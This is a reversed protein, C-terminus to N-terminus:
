ALVVRDCPKMKFNCSHTTVSAGPIGPFARSITVGGGNGRSVKYYYYYYYLNLTTIAGIIEEIAEM